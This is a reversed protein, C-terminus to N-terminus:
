DEEEAVPEMHVHLHRQMFAVLRELALEAEERAPIPFASRKLYEEGVSTLINMFGHGASPYFHLEFVGGASIVKEAAAEATKKDSFGKLQDKEGFQGLIPTKIKSIDFYAADPIGYFPAGCELPAGESMAALTLAGGMCFGTCGVKPSGTKLLYQAAAAIEGAAGKFDLGNMLHSAEEADVGIKGKYLDPILCRFGHKSILTALELINPSVGWWEQVVIVGAHTKNGIEYGTLGNGFTVLIPTEGKM